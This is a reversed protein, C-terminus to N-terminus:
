PSCLPHSFSHSYQIDNSLSKSYGDRGEQREEAQNENPGRLHAFSPMVFSAPASALRVGDAM